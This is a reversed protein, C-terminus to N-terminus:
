STRDNIRVWVRRGAGGPGASDALAAVVHERARDKAGADVADELDLVIQDARSRAAPGYEASHAANVLLWSRAIDAPVAGPTGPMGAALVGSPELQAIM